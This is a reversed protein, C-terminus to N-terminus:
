PMPAPKIGFINSVSVISSIMVTTFSSAKSLPLARALLSPKSTPTEDPAAIQAALWIAFLGSFLPFIM